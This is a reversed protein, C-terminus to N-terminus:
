RYLELRNNIIDLLDYKNYTKDYIKHIIPESDNFNLIPIIKRITDEDLEDSKSIYIKFRMLYDKEEKQFLENHTEIGHMDERNNDLYDYLSRMHRYLQYIRTYALDFDKQFTKDDISRLNYSQALRKDTVLEGDKYYYFGIYSFLCWFLTFVLQRVEDDIVEDKSEELLKKWRKIERTGYYIGNDYEKMLEVYEPNSMKDCYYQLADINEKFLDKTIQPTLKYKSKKKKPIRPM